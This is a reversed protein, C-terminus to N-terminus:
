KKPQVAETNIPQLAKRLEELPDLDPTVRVTLGAEVNGIHEGMLEIARARDGNELAAVIEEHENCSETADHSSQYLMSILVTRATLDRLIEALVSNGLADAMCVHFDGLLYSRAAVDGTTIAEMEQGIHGRLRQIAEAPISDVSLLLGIEIARRAQFATRAEEISPEIIFWGRRTSVQVVGRTELRILAERVVTRSVGFLQVLSQESLRTGAAIRGALIADIIRACIDTSQLV